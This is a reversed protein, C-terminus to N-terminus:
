MKQSFEKLKKKRFLNKSKIIVDISSSTLPPIDLITSCNRFDMRKNACTMSTVYLPKTAISVSIIFRLINQVDAIPAYILNVVSHSDEINNIELYTVDANQRSLNQFKVM